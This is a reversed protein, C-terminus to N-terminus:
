KRKIRVVSNSGSNSINKLDKLTLNASYTKKAKFNELIIGDELLKEQLSVIDILIPFLLRKVKNNVSVEYVCGNDDLYINLNVGDCNLNNIILRWMLRYIKTTNKESRIMGKLSVIKRKLSQQIKPDM